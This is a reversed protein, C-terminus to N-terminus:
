FAGRLHRVTAAGGRERLVSVVDFRLEPWFQSGDAARQESLWRLALSRVRSAKVPGVAETPDGFATSSRTKVECFVLVPGERAILDLEGDRCRWNRALVVLGQDALYQAAVREGYRGVADKARM